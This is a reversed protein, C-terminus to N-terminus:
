STPNPWEEITAVRDPDMTVGETSVIFGLFEVRTTNFQCKKLNVYLQFDHLRQLVLEVHRWHEAPEQSYILIDDLYIACIADVLGRLAKNIYAQFTASANGLGFPMVQYEFHCYSTRFATTWEDGRRIRIRHFADKHLTWNLSASLAM